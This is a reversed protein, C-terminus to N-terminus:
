VHEGVNKLYTSVLDISDLNHTEFDLKGNKLILFSDAIKSVDALLHTVIIIIVGSKKLQLFYEMLKYKLDAELNSLPEDLLLYKPSHILSQALLVKKNEGLSLKRLSKNKVNNMSLLSFISELKGPVESSRFYFKAVYKLYQEVSTNTSFMVGSPAYGILNKLNPSIIEGGYTIAGESHTILSALVNLLTTKGSGNPGTIINITGSSFKCTIGDLLKLNKIKLHLNEIKLM